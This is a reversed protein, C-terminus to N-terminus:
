GKLDHSAQRSSIGDSFGGIAAGAGRVAGGVGDGTGFWAQDAPPLVDSGTGGPDADGASRFTDDRIAMREVDRGSFDAAGAPEFRRIGGRGTAAAVAPSIGCVARLRGNGGHWRGRGMDM